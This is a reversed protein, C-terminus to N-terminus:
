PMTEYSTAMRSYMVPPCSSSPIGELGLFFRLFPLGPLRAAGDLLPAAEKGKRKEKAINLVVCNCKSANQYQTSCHSKMGRQRVANDVGCSHVRHEQHHMKAIPQLKM